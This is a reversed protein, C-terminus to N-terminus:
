KSDRKMVAGMRAKVEASAVSEFSRRVVGAAQAGNKDNRRVDSDVVRINQFNLDSPLASHGRVHSPKTKKDNATGPGESASVSPVALPQTNRKVIFQAGGGATSSAHSHTSVMSRKGAANNLQELDNCKYLAQYM